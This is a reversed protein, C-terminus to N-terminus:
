EISPKPIQLFRFIGINDVTYLLIIYNQKPVRLVHIYLRIINNSVISINYSELFATRMPSILTFFKPSNVNKKENILIIIYLEARDKKQSPPPSQINKLHSLGELKERNAAQM